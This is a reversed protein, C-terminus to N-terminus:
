KFKCELITINIGICGCVESIIGLIFMETSRKKEDKFDYCLWTM